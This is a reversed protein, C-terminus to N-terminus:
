VTRRVVANQEGVTDALQTVGGEIEAHCNSCVLVCKGAEARLTDLSVTVGHQSVTMRKDSPNLHHFELAGIYRSYGCIVCVGGAEAVITEKLKRRHRAVSESRCRKCRYYGRGEIGFETEGHRRCRMTVTLLGAQKSDRFARRERANRTRLGYRGLWHRVTTKSRDLRAALESISLGAEVLDALLEQDIAGRAAHKDSNVAALGHKEIWYSVTSADRGFRRGIEELSLGRGLLVELSDEDM